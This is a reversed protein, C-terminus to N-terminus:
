PTAKTAAIITASFKACAAIYADHAADHATRTAHLTDRAIDFDVYAAHYADKAAEMDARVTDLPTM